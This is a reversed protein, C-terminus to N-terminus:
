INIKYYSLFLSHSKKQTLQGHVKKKTFTFLYCSQNEREVIVEKCFCCVAFVTKRKKKFFFGQALRLTQTHM